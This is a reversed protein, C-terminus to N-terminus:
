PGPNQYGLPRNSARGKAWPPHFGWLPGSWPLAIVALYALVFGAADWSACCLKRALAKAGAGGHSGPNPPGPELRGVAGGLDM